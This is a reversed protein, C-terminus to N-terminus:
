KKNTNVMINGKILICADSYDCSSSRLMATEFRIQNTPSYAGRVSDNMGIWNKTRFKSSQNSVKDLM